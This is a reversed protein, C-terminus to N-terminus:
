DTRALVQEVAALFQHWAATAGRRAQEQDARFGSQEMRLRTDTATATLTSTVVSELGFAQWTYSLTKNPEVALVQCDVVVSVDPKPSRTLNFRHGAVPKFDNKM